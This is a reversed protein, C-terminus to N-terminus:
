ARPAGYTNSNERIYDILANFLPYWTNQDNVGAWLTDYVTEAIFYDELNEPNTLILQILRKNGVDRTDFRLWLFQRYHRYANSIGIKDNVSPVKDQLGERVIRVELDDFDMVDDFYKLNTTQEKTFDGGPVLVLSKWDDILISESKVVRAIDVTPLHGTEPDIDIVQGRTCSGLLTLGACIVVFRLRAGTKM